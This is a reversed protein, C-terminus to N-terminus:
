LQSVLLRQLAVHVAHIRLSMRINILSFLARKEQTASIIAKIGSKASLAERKNHDSHNCCGTM